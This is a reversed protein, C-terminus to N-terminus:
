VGLVAAANAATQAALAEVPTQRLDALFRATHVLFAPENPQGRRPVPALYPADTEILLRDGPIYRAVDRVNEAAKFTVIGAISVFFGLDLLRGCFPRSGTFCHIIGKSPIERLLGLTDDDAERTHVVVPLGRETLIPKWEEPLISWAPRM